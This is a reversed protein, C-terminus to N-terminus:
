YRDRYRFEFEEDSLKIIDGDNLRKADGSILKEGNLWSGNTSNCDEVKAIGNEFRIMAHQRSITRNDDILYNSHVSDKGLTFMTNYIEIRDGNKRRILYGVMETSLNGSLITTSDTDVDNNLITTSDTDISTYKITTREESQQFYRDLVSPEKEKNKKNKKNKKEEKIDGVKTNDENPNNRKIM